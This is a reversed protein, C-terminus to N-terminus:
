HRMRPGAASALAELDPLVAFGHSIEILGDRRLQQLTRNVHVVSLGLHDSMQQQTVPLPMRRGTAMGAAALREGLGLLFDATRERASKRGLAVIQGLLQRDRADLAIRLELQAADRAKPEADSDAVVATMRVRTVARVDTTALGNLGPIGTIDGPLLFRVIQVRGDPFPYEESAWGHRVIMPRTREGAEVACLGAAYTGGGAASGTPSDPPISAVTAPAQHSHPM